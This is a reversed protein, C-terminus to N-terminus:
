LIPNQLVISILHEQLGTYIKYNKYVFCLCLFDSSGQVMYTTILVTTAILIVILLAVALLLVRRATKKGRNGENIESYEKCQKGTERKINEETSVVSNHNVAM